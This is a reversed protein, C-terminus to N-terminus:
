KCSVGLVNGFDELLVVDVMMEESVVLLASLM